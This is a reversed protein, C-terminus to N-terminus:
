LAKVGDIAAEIDDEAGEVPRVLAELGGAILYDIRAAPWDFTPLLESGDQVAIRASTGAGIYILRGNIHASLSLHAAEIAAIIEPLAARLAPIAEAQNELMVALADASTLKDLWKEPILRAETSQENM